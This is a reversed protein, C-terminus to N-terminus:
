EKSIIKSNFTIIEGTATQGDAGLYYVTKGDYVFACMILEIDYNSLEFGNLRFDFGVYENTNIKAYITRDENLLTGDQNIPNVDNEDEPAYAVVGFELATGLQANYVELEEVNLMYGATISSGGIKASYGNFVIIARVDESYEHECGDNTCSFVNKGAKDIGNEYVIKNNYSHDLGAVKEAGCVLCCVSETCKGDVLVTYTPTEVSEKYEVLAFTGDTYTCNYEKTVTGDCINFYGFRYGAYYGLTTSGKSTTKVSDIYHNFQDMNAFYYEVYPTLDNASYVGDVGDYANIYGDFVVKFGANLNWYTLGASFLTSTLTLAEDATEGGVIHILNDGSSPSITINNLQDARLKIYPYRLGAQNGAGLKFSNSANYVVGNTLDLSTILTACGTYYHNNNTIYGSTSFANAGVSKLNMLDLEIEAEASIERAFFASEGITEIQKSKVIFAKVCGGTSYYTNFGIQRFAEKGITKVGSGVYVYEACVAYQFARDGIIQVSDPVYISILVKNLM